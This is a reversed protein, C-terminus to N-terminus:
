DRTSRLRPDLVDRLGDGLLNFGLVVLSIAALPPVVTWWAQRIYRFQDALMRGWEPTSPDDGLGLFSLGATELIATGMGLTAQVLLPAVCNPLVALAVIRLDSAGIARAALVYEQVKVRMVEARMVRAFQPVAVVAVAVMANRLSPGLVSVIVLALLIGPVALLVDVVRMLIADASGGFYGSITGMTAGILIAAGIVVIGVRLSIRSGAMTRSLIDRGVGDTGLLHTPSPPLNRSDLDVSRPDLPTYVVSLLAVLIFASLIVSGTVVMANRSLASLLDRNM